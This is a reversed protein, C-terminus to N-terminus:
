FNGDGGAVFKAAGDDFNACFDRAYLDSVKDRTFTVDDAIEAAVAAGSATM